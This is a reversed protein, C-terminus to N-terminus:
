LAAVELVVLAAVTAPPRDWLKPWQQLAKTWTLIGTM